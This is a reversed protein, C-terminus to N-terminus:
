RIMFTKWLMPHKKIIRVMKLIIEANLHETDKVDTLDADANVHLMEMFNIFDKDTVFGNMDANIVIANMDKINDMGFLPELEEIDYTNKALDEAM